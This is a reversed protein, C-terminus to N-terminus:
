NAPSRGLQVILEQQACQLVAELDQDRVGGGQALTPTGGGKGGFPAVVTRLLTGMNVPVDASAAFCIQAAPPASAMLTITATGQTLDQAAKRMQAPTYEIVRAVIRWGNVVQAQTLWRPIEAELLQSALAEIQKLQKKSEDVLRSVTAPLEQAHISLTGATQQVIRGVLRQATIARQGCVFEIRVQSRRKEYGLIHISGIEGTAHVHTGGCATVDYSGMSVVRVLGHVAPMKRLAVDVLEDSQYERVVVALNDWIIQNAADEVADVLADDCRDLALDITCTDAGLHFSVTAANAVRLWAQSLIHQGSHQQMHDFRRPWDIRGHVPGPALPSELLHLIQESEENVSLVRVHNLTGIDHPQGGSTPYFCTRDLIAYPQGIHEASEVIQADFETCYPDTRYLRVTM